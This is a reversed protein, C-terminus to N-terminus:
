HTLTVVAWITMIVFACNIALIITDCAILISFVWKWGPYMCRAVEFRRYVYIALIYAPICLVCFCFGCLDSLWVNGIKVESFMFRGSAVFLVIPITFALVTLMIQIVDIFEAKLKM